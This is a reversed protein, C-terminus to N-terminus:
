HRRTRPLPTPFRQDPHAAPSPLRHIVGLSICTGLTILLSRFVFVLFSLVLEPGQHVGTRWLRACCRTKNRRIRNTTDSPPNVPQQRGLGRVSCLDSTRSTSEQLLLRPEPQITPDLRRSPTSPSVQSAPPHLWVLLCAVRRPAAPSCVCPCSHPFSPLSHTGQLQKVPSYGRPRRLV